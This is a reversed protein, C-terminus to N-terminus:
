AAVQADSALLQALRDYAPRMGAEMGVGFTQRDQVTPFLVRNTLLTGGDEERLTLTVTWDAVSSPAGESRITHVIREPTVERFEGVMRFESGDPARMVHRLHGGPRLDCECVTMEMAECSMWRRTIEPQTIAAYVAERTADLRKSVVLERNERTEEDLFPVYMVPRVEVAGTRAVPHEAAIALAEDLDEAEIQLFGALQERTEAFPGDTVMRRGERLRLSTAMATPQLIGAAVYRGGAKLRDVIGECADCCDDFAAGERIGGDPGFPSNAENDYILLMYNM